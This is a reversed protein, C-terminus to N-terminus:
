KPPDDVGTEDEYCEDDDADIELEDIRSELEDIHSQHKKIQDELEDVRINVRMVSVQYDEIMQKLHGYLGVLIIFIVFGAIYLV